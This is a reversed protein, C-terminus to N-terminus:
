VDDTQKEILRKAKVPIKSFEIAVEYFEKRKTIRVITGKVPAIFNNDLLFELEFEQGVKYLDPLELLAGFTSLSIARAFGDQIPANSDNCRFAVLLKVNKRCSRRQESSTKSTKTKPTPM